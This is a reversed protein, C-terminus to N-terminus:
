PKVTRNPDAQVMALERHLHECNDELGDRQGQCSALELRLRAIETKLQTVSDTLLVDNPQLRFWGQLVTQVEASTMRGAKLREIEAELERVKKVAADKVVSLEFELAHKQGELLKITATSADLCEKSRSLLELIDQETM